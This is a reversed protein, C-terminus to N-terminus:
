PTDAESACLLKSYVTLANEDIAPLPFLLTRMSAPRREMRTAGPRPRASQRAASATASAEHRGSLCYRVTVTFFGCVPAISSWGQGALAGLAEV